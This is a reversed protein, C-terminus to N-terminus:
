YPEALTYSRTVPTIDVPKGISQYIRISAKANRTNNFNHKTYNEFKPNWQPRPPLDTVEGPPIKEFYGHRVSVDADRRFSFTRNFVGELATWNIAPYKGGLQFSSGVSKSSRRSRLPFMLEHKVIVPITGSESTLPARM